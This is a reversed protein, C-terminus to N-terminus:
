RSQRVEVLDVKVVSTSAGAIVDCRLRDGVDTM